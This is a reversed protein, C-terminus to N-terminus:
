TKKLGTIYATARLFDSIKKSPYTYIQFRQYNVGLLLNKLEEHTYGVAILSAVIAGVSSSAFGTISVNLEELAKLAGIYATGRVGSRCIHCYIRTIM